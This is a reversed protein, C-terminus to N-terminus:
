KLLVMKKSETLKGARLRYFYVGSGMTAGNEDRGDWTVEHTGYSQVENLLTRVLHGSADHITLTVDERVPLVFRITTTPNFPNPQNQSLEATIAKVSVTVIPSFFEGDGDVVGIRYRYSQGPAVDRDVYEFRDRRVANVRKIVILPDADAGVARYVNVAEVGLDSRFASRLTVVGDTESADFSAIAVANLPDVVNQAYIDANGNRHDEWTVIAGGAGDSVIEPYYQGGTATCLAVGDGTWKPVGSADMRQTYIDPPYARYDEWTVIAGGADDSVITPNYQNDGATCTAVGDATWQPTGSASVRQTYIDAAAGRNDTWTVIAGGAGDSVIMPGQQYNTATCLAVGNATWQPVGSVDVLQAYIDSTAGSRSDHWTVIAGGAAGDATIAEPFRENDAICLAVGNATWQPVGSADVRQAYIDSNPYGTRRNDYWTVFAGGAGDSVITPSDQNDVATCVAVGNATWQPTGSANVRRAYIDHGGNRYDTWTVIAGGAGDSIARIGVQQNVATCLAVGNATWQPVGSADVRQAYIDTPTASNRLDQWVMIAGGAGDSIILPYQQDNTAASVAVGNATWQPVGLADVRQAYVDSTSGNRLDTWTVIAGGAGDSVIAPSGQYSAATCLPVGDVQWQAQAKLAIFSLGGVLVLLALAHRM